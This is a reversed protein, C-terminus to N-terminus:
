IMKDWRAWLGLQWQICCLKNSTPVTATWCQAVYEISVWGGRTRRQQVELNSCDGLLTPRQGANKQWGSTSRYSVPSWKHPYAMWLLNVFWALEAKWGKQPRYILLSSCNPTGCETSAGDPSHKRLFPLCPTIQLYFQTIWTQAGQSEVSYLPATYISDNGTAKGKGMVWLVYRRWPRRRLSSSIKRTQMYM